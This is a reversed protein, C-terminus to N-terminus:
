RSGIAIAMPDKKVKRIVLAIQLVGNHNFPTDESKPRKTRGGHRGEDGGENEIVSVALRRNTTDFFKTCLCHSGIETTSHEMTGRHITAYERIVNHDGIVVHSPVNKYALDQPEAGIIAGYGIQNNKGIQSAGTIVAHARIECGDGIQCGEEVLAGPGVKVGRGLEARPSVIASAHIM